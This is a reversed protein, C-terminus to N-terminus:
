MIWYEREPEVRGSCRQLFEDKSILTKPSIRVLSNFAPFASGKKGPSPFLPLGLWKKWGYNIGLPNLSEHWNSLQTQLQLTKYIYKVIGSSKWVLAGHYCWWKFFKIKVWSYFINLIVSKKKAKKGWPLTVASCLLVIWKWQANAVSWMSTTSSTNRYKMNKFACWHATFVVKSNWSEDWVLNIRTKPSCLICM